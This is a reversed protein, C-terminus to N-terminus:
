YTSKQSEPMNAVTSYREFAFQNLNENAKFSFFSCYHRIVVAPAELGIMEKTPADDLGCLGQWNHKSLKM